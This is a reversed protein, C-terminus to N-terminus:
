DTKLQSVRQHSIGTLAAVDRVSLGEARLGGAAREAVHQTVASIEKLQDRLKHARVALDDLEGEDVHCEWTLKLEPEAGRPLDLAGAIAERMGSDLARLNKAWSHAGMLGDVEGTWAHVQADWQARVPFTDVRWDRM